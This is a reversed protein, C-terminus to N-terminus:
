HGLAFRPISELFIAHTPLPRNLNEASPQKIAGGHNPSPLAYDDRVVLVSKPPSPYSKTQERGWPSDRQATGPLGGKVLFRLLVHFHKSGGREASAVGASARFVSGEAFTKRDDSDVHGQSSSPHAATVTSAGIRAVTAQHALLAALPMTLVASLFTGITRVSVAISLDERASFAQGSYSSM